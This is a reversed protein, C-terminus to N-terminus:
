IVPFRFQPLSAGQNEGNAIRFADHVPGSNGLAGFLQETTYGQRQLISAVKLTLDYHWDTEPTRHGELASGPNPCWAGTFCIVGASALHEVGELISDKPEIGAVINSRVNGRGFVTAAHELAKVWHDWGGCRKEKGPCIARFIDKNWIELNMAITTYGAEKYNEITSLDQPAGIVATGHIKGVGTRARIEDAVDLYYEVERREPIFGGTVNIHNALKLGYATEFVEAVQKPTKLFINQGRYAEATSNINCYKCDEGAQKLDCENSYFIGIGGEPTFQAIHDFGVGDSTKRRLLEPRRYFSIEGIRKSGLYIVPLGDEAKLRYPSRPDWRFATFLGHPLYFAAPLELDGHHERDMDFLLHIQEAFETGIAFRRLEKADFAIGQVGLDIKLWLEDLLAKRDADTAGIGSSAGNTKRNRACSKDHSPKSEVIVDLHAPTIGNRDKGWVPSVDTSM